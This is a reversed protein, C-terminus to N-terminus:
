ENKRRGKKHISFNFLINTKIKYWVKGQEELTKGAVAIRL